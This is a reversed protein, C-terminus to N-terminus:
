HAEQEDTQSIQWSILFARGIDVRSAIGTLIGDKTVVLDQLDHKQMVALARMLSSTGEISVPEEMIEAVMLSSAEVLSGTSPNEMAGFDKVFDVNSLLSVFDPLFLELIAQLTTLGVLKMEDDVVPMTGVRKEMMLAATEKVSTNQHVSFVPTKMWDSIIKKTEM